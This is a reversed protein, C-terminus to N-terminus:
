KLIIIKKPKSITKENRIQYFYIGSSINKIDILFQNDTIQIIKQLIIKGSADNLIFTFNKEFFNDKIEIKFFDSSPNPYIV